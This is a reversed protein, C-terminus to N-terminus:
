GQNIVVLRRDLEGSGAHGRACGHRKVWVRPEGRIGGGAAVGEGWGKGGGSPGARSASPGLLDRRGRQVKGMGM